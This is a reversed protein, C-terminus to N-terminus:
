AIESPKDCDNNTENMALSVDDVRVAGFVIKRYCFESWRERGFIDVYTILGWFHLPESQEQVYDQPILFERFVDQKIDDGNAGLVSPYPARGERSMDKAEDHTFSFPHKEYTLHAYLLVNYAPTTGTNHVVIKACPKEGLQYDYLIIKDVKVYAAQSYTMAQKNQAIIEGTKTNAERMVELQGQAIEAQKNMTISQRRMIRWQFAAFTAQAVILVLTLLSLVIELTKTKEEPKETQNPSETNSEITKLQEKTPEVTPLQTPTPTIQINANAQNQKNQSNNTNRQSYTENQSFLFLLFVFALSFCKAITSKRM